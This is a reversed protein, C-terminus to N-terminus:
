WDDQQDGSPKQICSALDSSVINLQKTVDKHGSGMWIGVKSYGSNKMYGSSEQLQMINTHKIRFRNERAMITVRSKVNKKIMRATFAKRSNAIVKAGVMDVDVLVSQAGVSSDTDQKRSPFLGQSSSDSYNVQDAELVELACSRARSTIEQPTGQTEYVQSEVETLYDAANVHNFMPIGLILLLIRKMVEAKQRKFRLLLYFRM